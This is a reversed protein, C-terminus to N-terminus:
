LPVRLINGTGKGKNFKSAALKGYRAELMPLVSPETDYVNIPEVTYGMQSLGVGGGDVGVM